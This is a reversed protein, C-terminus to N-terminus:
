ETVEIAVVRDLKWGRQGLLRDLGEAQPITRPFGDLVFGARADPRSLREEVIGLILADPVLDGRDMIGKVQTGLPSGSQVAARLIDGTSIQVLHQQEQLRRAQTGKGAGPPGLLILNAM